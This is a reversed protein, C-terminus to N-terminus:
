MCNLIIINFFCFIKIIINKIIALTISAINKHKSLLSFCVMIVDAFVTADSYSIKTSTSSETNYKIRFLSITFVYLHEPPFHDVGDGIPVHFIVPFSM